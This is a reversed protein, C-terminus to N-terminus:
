PLFGKEVLCARLDARGRIVLNAARKHDWRMLRAVEQIPYGILNLTVAQRRDPSLTALCGFIAAGMERTLVLEEPDPRAHDPLEPRTESDGPDPRPRRVRRRIKDVMATHVVLFVYSPPLQAVEELSEQSALLRVMTDQELDERESASWTSCTRAIARRVTQRVKAIPDEPTPRVLEKPEVSGRELTKGPQERLLSLDPRDSGVRDIDSAISLGAAADAAARGKPDEAVKNRRLEMSEVM